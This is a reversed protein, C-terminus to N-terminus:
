GGEQAVNKETFEQIGVVFVNTNERALRDKALKIQLGELCLVYSSLPFTKRGWCYTSLLKNIWKDTQPCKPQNWRNAM